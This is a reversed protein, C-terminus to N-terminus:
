RQQNRCFLNRCREACTMQRVVTKRKPVATRRLTTRSRSKVKMTKIFQAVRHLPRIRWKSSNRDVTKEPTHQRLRGKRAQFRLYHGVLGALGLKTLRRHTTDRAVALLTYKGPLVKTAFSGDIASRVQKFLKSSGLHFIAVVANSIPTGQDTRVVGRITGFDTSHAITVNAKSETTQLAFVFFPTLLAFGSKILKRRLTTALLM